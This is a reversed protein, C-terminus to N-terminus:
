VPEFNNRLQMYATGFLINSNSDTDILMIGKHENFNKDVYGVEIFPAANEQLWILGVKIDKKKEM